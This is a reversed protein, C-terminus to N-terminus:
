ATHSKEPNDHTGEYQATEPFIGIQDLPVIGNIGLDKDPQRTRDSTWVVFRVPINRSSFYESASTCHADPEM